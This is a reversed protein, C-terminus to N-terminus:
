LKRPKPARSLPRQHLSASSGSQLLHFPSRLTMGHRLGAARNMMAMNRPINKVNSLHLKPKM